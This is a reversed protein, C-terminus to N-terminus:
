IQRYRPPLTQIKNLQNACIGHTVRSSLPPNSGGGGQGRLSRSPLYRSLPAYSIPSIILCRAVSSNLYSSTASSRALFALKGLKFNIRHHFHLWHMQRLLVNSSLHVKPDVVCSRRGLANQTRHLYNINKLAVGYLVANSYDLRSSMIHTM